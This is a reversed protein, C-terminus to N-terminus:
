YSNDDSIIHGAHVNDLLPSLKIPPQNGRAQCGLCDRPIMSGRPPCVNDDNPGPYFEAWMARRVKKDVAPRPTQNPRRKKSFDSWEGENGGFLIKVRMVYHKDISMSTGDVSFTHNTYQTTGQQLVTNRDEDAYLEYRFSRGQINKSDDWSFGMMFPKNNAAMYRNPKAAILNDSTRATAQALAHAPAPAAAAAAAAGDGTALAPTDTTRGRKRVPESDDAIDGIRKRELRVIKGQNLTQKKLTVDKTVRCTDADVPTLNVAGELYNQLQPKTNIINAGKSEYLKGIIDDVCPFHSPVTTDYGSKTTTCIFGLHQLADRVDKYKKMNGDNGEGKLQALLNAFDDRNWSPQDAM